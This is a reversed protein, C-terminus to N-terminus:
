VKRDRMGDKREKGVQGDGKGQVIRERYQVIIVTVKKQKVDRGGHKGVKKAGSKEKLKKRIKYDTVYIFSHVFDRKQRGDGKEKRKAEKSERCTKM